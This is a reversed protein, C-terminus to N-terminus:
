LPSRCVKAVVGNMAVGSQAAASGNGFCSAQNSTCGGAAYCGSPAAAM